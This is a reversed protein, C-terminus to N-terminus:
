VIALLTSDVAPPVHVAADNVTPKCNSNTWRLQPVSMSAAMTAGNQLRHCPWGHCLTTVEYTEFAQLQQQATRM